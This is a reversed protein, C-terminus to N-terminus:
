ARRGGTRRLGRLVDDAIAVPDVDDQIKRHQEMWADLESLKFLLRRHVYVRPVTKDQSLTSISLGTYKSAEEKGVWRDRQLYALIEEVPVLGRPIADAKRVERRAEGIPDLSDKRV